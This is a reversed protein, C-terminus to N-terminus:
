LLTKFRLSRVTEPRAPGDDFFACNNLVNEMTGNDTITAREDVHSYLIPYTCLLKLLQLNLIVVCELPNSSQKIYIYVGEHPSTLGSVHLLKRTLVNDYNQRCTHM